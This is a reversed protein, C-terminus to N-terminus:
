KRLNFKSLQKVKEIQQYWDNAVLELNDVNFLGFDYNRYKELIKIFASIDDVETRFRVVTLHATQLLYRKDISQEVEAESFIRRLNDRIDNLITDGFFGQIMIGSQTATIGKFHIDFNNFGKLAKMTILNYDNVDIADLKFGDYCSIISLVTLHIDSNRYYYQNPEISKLEDLFLQIKNKILVPPRLLLTIGYRDDTSSDINNDVIFNSLRIKELCQSYLLDKFM